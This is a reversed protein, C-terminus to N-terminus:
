GETDGSHVLYRRPRVVTDCRVLVVKDGTGSAISPFDISSVVGAVTSTESAIATHSAVVHGAKDIATVTLNAHPAPPAPPPTRGAGIWGFPDHTTNTCDSAMDEVIGYWCGNGTHGHGHGYIENRGVRQQPKFQWVNCAATGVTCCMQQCADASEATKDQELNKCQVNTLNVPFTCAPQKRGVTADLADSAATRSAPTNNTELTVKWAVQVGLSSATQKGVSNGNVFLEADLTTTITTVDCTVTGGDDHASCSLMGPVDLVQNPRTSQHTLIAHVDTYRGINGEFGRELFFCMSRRLAVHLALSKINLM